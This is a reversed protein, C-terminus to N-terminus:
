TLEVDVEFTIFMVRELPVVNATLPLKLPAVKASLVAPNTSPDFVALLGIVCNPNNNSTLPPV